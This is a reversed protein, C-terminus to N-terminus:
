EGGTGDDEVYEYEYEEEAAAQKKAAAKKPQAKAAPKAAAKQKAAKKSGKPPAENVLMDYTIKGEENSPKVTKKARDVIFTYTLYNTKTPIIAAIEFLGGESNKVEWNTRNFNGGSRGAHDYIKNELSQGM